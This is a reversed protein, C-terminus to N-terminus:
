KKTKKNLDNSQKKVEDIVKDIIKGGGSRLYEEYEKLWFRAMAKRTIEYFDDFTLKSLWTVTRQNDKLEIQHFSGGFSLPIFAASHGAKDRLHLMLELRVKLQTDITSSSDPKYNSPRYLRSNIIKKESDNLFKTYFTFIQKRTGYKEHYSDALEDLKSKMAKKSAINVIQNLTSTQKLYSFPDFHEEGYLRQVSSFVKYLDQDQKASFFYLSSTYFDSM